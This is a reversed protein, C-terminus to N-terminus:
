SRGTRVWRGAWRRAPRAATSRSGPTPPSRARGCAWAGTPASGTCGPSVAVVAARYACVSAYDAGRARLIRLIVAPPRHALPAALCAADYAPVRLRWGSLPPRDLAQATAKATM